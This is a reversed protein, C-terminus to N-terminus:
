LRLCIFIGSKVYYIASKLCGFFKFKHVDLIASKVVCGLIDFKFVCLFPLSESKLFRKSKSM